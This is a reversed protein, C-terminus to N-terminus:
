LGNIDGANHTTHGCVMFKERIGEHVGVQNTM